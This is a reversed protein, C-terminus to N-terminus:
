QKKEPNLFSYGIAFSHWLKGQYVWDDGIGSAYDQGLVYGISFKDFSFIVGSSWSFGPIVDIDNSSQNSTTNNSLNIFSLGLTAPVTVYYNNRKSLRKTIGLYPGITVDTTMKFNLSDQAPRLKFPITLLGTTFKFNKGKPIIYGIYGWKSSGIKGLTWRTDYLTTKDLKDFKEKEIILIKDNIGKIPFRVGNEKLEDISKNIENKDSSTTTQKGNIYNPYTIVIYEKEDKFFVDYEADVLFGSTSYFITDSVIEYRRNVEYFDTRENIEIYNRKEFNQQGYVTTTGIALVLILLFNNLRMKNQNTKKSQIVGL